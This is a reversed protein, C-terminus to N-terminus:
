TSVAAKGDEQFVLIDDIRVGFLAALVALNELMKTLTRLPLTKM